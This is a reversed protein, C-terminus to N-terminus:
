IDFGLTAAWRLNGSERKFKGVEEFYVAADLKVIWLDLTAGGTLYGQSVGGRATLVWPFEMEVGFHLKTLFAREQNIDRFDLAVTNKLLWLDPHIAIGASISQENGPATGFSPNGIDQWTIGVEPKLYDYGPLSKIIPFGLNSKLGLDASMGFHKKKYINQFQGKILPDGNADEGLVDAFTVQEDLGEDLSFRVVPKLTVGVQLLKDWFGYAGSIYAGVDGLNRIHFQPFSQDRFSLRLHETLFVGAAFNKRAYNVIDLTYRFSNFEGTNDQIFKNLVRTRDAGQANDIDDALDAIEKILNFSTKSIDVTNTFFQFRGEKLDNLGAPNYFPSSDHHGQLAAGVNGMGLNRVKRNMSPGEQAFNVQARVDASILSIGILVVTAIHSHNM